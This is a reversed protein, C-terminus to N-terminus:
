GGGAAGGSAADAVNAMALAVNRHVPDELLLVSERLVTVSDRRDRNTGRLLLATGLARGVDGRGLGPASAQKDWLDQLLAIARDLSAGGENILARALYYNMEVDGPVKDIELVAQAHAELSERDNGYNALIAVLRRRTSSDPMMQLVLELHETAERWRGQAVLTDSYMLWLDLSGPRQLLEGHVFEEAKRPDLVLYFRMWAGTSGPRLSELAVHGTSERFTDLQAYARRVRVYSYDEDARLEIEARALAILPDRPLQRGLIELEAAVAARPVAETDALQAVQLFTLYDSVVEHAVPAPASLCSERYFEMAERWRKQSQLLHAMQRVAPLLGPDHEMALRAQEIAGELNGQRELALSRTLAVEGEEGPLDGIAQRRQQRLRVLDPHDLLGVRALEIEELLTWLPRFTPWTDKVTLAYIRADNIRGDEFLGRAALYSPWVSGKGGALDRWRAVSWARWGPVRSALLTVLAHRPDSSYAPEGFLFEVLQRSTDAGLTPDPEVAEVRMAQTAARVLYWLPDNAHALSGAQAREWGEDLREDLLILVAQGLEDTEFGADILARVYTPLVNWKKSEVAVILRGLAARGSEDFAEARDFSELAQRQDGRLLGNLGLRLMTDADRLAPTRDLEELLKQASDYLGNRWMDDVASSLMARDVPVGPLEALFGDLDEVAGALAAAQIKHGLAKPYQPSDPGILTLLRAAEKYRGQEVLIEGVLVRGDDRLFSYPMSQLGGLARDQQGTARLERAIEIRGTRGPDLRMLELTQERTLAGRPLLDVKRYTDAHPGGHQLRSLLQTAAQPYAGIALSADIVLDVAPLFGPFQDVVHQATALACPHDGNASYLEALKFLEYPGTEVSPACLGRRSLNDILLALSTSERSLRAEGISRWRPFLEPIRDPLLRMAQTLAHEVSALNDPDVKPLVDALEIWVEGDDDPAQKVAVLLNELEGAPRGIERDKRGMTRAIFAGTHAIPEIPENTMQFDHFATAAQRYNEREAYAYGIYFNALAKDRQSGAAQLKSAVAVLRTWSKAEMLANCWSRLFEASPLARKSLDKEIMDCAAEARGVSVLADVIHLMTQPDNGILKFTAVSLGFDAAEHSYGARDLIELYQAVAEQQLSGGFSTALADRAATIDATALEVLRLVHRVQSEDRDLFLGRLEHTLSLRVPDGASIGTLRHVLAIAQQSPGDALTDALVQEAERIREDAIRVLFRGRFTWASVLTPDEALLQDARELGAEDEGAAYDVALLQVPVHQDDPRLQVVREYDQRAKTHAGMRRYVDGRTTLVDSELDVDESDLSALALDLESLMRQYDPVPQALESRASELLQVPGRDIHRMTLKALGAFTLTALVLMLIAFYKM